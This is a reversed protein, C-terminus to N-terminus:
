LYKLGRDLVNACLGAWLYPGSFLALGAAHVSGRSKDLWGQSRGTRSRASRAGTKRLLAAIATHHTQQAIQLANRGKKDRLSLDAGAALLVRIIAADGATAEQVVSARQRAAAQRVKAIAAKGTADLPAHRQAMRVATELEQSFLEPAQQIRGAEVVRLLATQGAADQANVEAGAGVLVQVLAASSNVSAEMLATRGRADRANVDAGHRLLSQAIAGDGSEAWRKWAAKEPLAVEPSVPKDAGENARHLIGERMQPLLRAIRARGAEAIHMLATKQKRDRANVEAGRDLLLQVVEPHGNEAAALLPTLGPHAAAMQRYEAMIEAAQKPNERAEQQALALMQPVDQADSINIPAGKDLLMQVAPAIGAASAAVLALRDAGQTVDAGHNLLSQVIATDEEAAKRQVEARQAETMTGGFGFLAMQARQMNGRSLVALLATPHLAGEARAHAGKDLLLQVVQRQGASAAWMLPPEGEGLNPDAGHDLLLRVLGADESGMSAIIASILATSGEKDKLNPSAGHALLVGAAEVHGYSAAESLATEGREDQANVQAGQKLLFEVMPARGADAAALLATRGLEDKGNVQAGRAILLRAIEVVGSIAADMLLSRGEGEPQVKAGAVLLVRVIPADGLDIARSLLSGYERRANVNAGKGILARVALASRSNIAYELVLTGGQDRANANAGKGLLAQVLPMSVVGSECCELALMLPTRGAEDRADPDAGLALLKVAVPVDQREV